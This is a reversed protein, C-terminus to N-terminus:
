SSTRDWVPDEATFEIRKILDDEWEAKTPEQLTFYSTVKSFQFTITIMGGEEDSPDEVKLAHTSEDPPKSKYKTTENIKIANTRCHMPFMLHHRLHDLHIAQNIIMFYPKGTQRKDYALVGKVTQCVKSGDEPDYGTVNVPRDFDHVMLCVKGVVTTGTHSDLELRTKDSNISYKAVKIGMTCVMAVKSAGGGSAGEVLSLNGAM